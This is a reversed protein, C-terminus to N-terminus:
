GESWDPPYQWIAGLSEVITKPKISLEFGNRVNILGNAYVANLWGIHGRFKIIIFPGCLFSGEEPWTSEDETITRVRQREALQELTSIMENLKKMSNDCNLDDFPIFKEQYTVAKVRNLLTTIESIKM